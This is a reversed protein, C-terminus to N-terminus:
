RGLLLTSSCLCFFKEINIIAIFVESAESSYRKEGRAKLDDSTYYIWYSSYLLHVPPSIINNFATDVGINKYGYLSLYELFIPRHIVSTLTHTNVTNGEALTQPWSHSILFLGDEWMQFPVTCFRSFIQEFHGNLTFEAM